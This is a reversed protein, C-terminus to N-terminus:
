AEKIVQVSQEIILSECEEVPLAPSYLFGQYSDCGLHHILRLQEKNEVGEAVVKLKLNQALSVVAAVISVGSSTQDIDHIFSQDIKLCDLTFRKLYSLSSYGTGFDDVSISIGLSKLAQITTIANEVDNMIASETIEIDLVCGDLDYKELYDRIQDYLHGQEFQRSSINIAIRGFEIGKDLWTRAQHCAKNIVWDGLQKILGTKEALPIFIGPSITEGDTNKWRCLAEVGIITGTQTCVQPQYYLALQDNEIARKFQSFLKLQSNTQSDMDAQYFTFTDRGADKAKYMAVDATKLLSSISTGHDPYLSIGISATLHMEQEDIWFPRTLAKMVKEAIHIVNQAASIEELIITFEDGGIRALTDTERIVNALTDAAHCLVDDGAAHGLSDNIAKFNDLDIFLLATRTGIRESRKISADLREQFLTRNALGTLSDYLALKKLQLEMQKRMSINRIITLVALQGEFRIPHSHCEVWLRSESHAQLIEIEIYASQKEDSAAIKHLNQMWDHMYEPAILEGFRCQHFITEEFGFMRPVVSNWFLLDDSRTVMVGDNMTQMLTRYKEESESLAQESSQRNLIEKELAEKNERLAQTREEVRVELEQQHAQLHMEVRERSRLYAVLLLTFLFGALLVLWPRWSLEEVAVNKNPVLVLRITQEGINLDHTRQMINESLEGNPAWQLSLGKEAFRQLPRTDDAIEFIFVRLDEGSVYSKAASVLDPIAIMSILYGELPISQSLLYDNLNSPFVSRALALTPTEGSLEPITLAFLHGSQSAHRKFRDTLPSNLLDYQLRFDESQPSASKPYVYKIPLHWGSVDTDLQSLHKGHRMLLRTAPQDGRHQSDDVESNSQTFPAWLLTQHNSGNPMAAKVFNQFEHRDVYRSSEFFSVTSELHLLSEELGRRMSHILNTADREFQVTRRHNELDNVADFALASLIMGLIFLMVAGLPISAPYRLSNVVAKVKM